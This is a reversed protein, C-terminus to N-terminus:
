KGKRIYIDGHFTKVMIEPGGGNISGTVWENAEIKTYGKESKRVVKQSSKLASIEFDSFIDGQDTRAKINVKLAAPFSLDVKGNLTSFAMPTNPTVKDFSAKIDGNITSAVASGSVNNLVILGNVNSLEFEGSVGEIHINGNNITKLNYSGGYAPVHLTVFMNSTPLGTNIKIKNANEEVSIDFAGGGSIKRMGDKMQPTAKKGSSTEIILNQASYKVVKISGEILGLDVSFSKGPQSLPVEIKEQADVKPLVLLVIGIFIIIKKM